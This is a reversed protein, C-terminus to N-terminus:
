ACQERRESGEGADPTFRHGKKGDSTGDEVPFKALSWELSGDIHEAMTRAALDPDGSALAVLLRRHADVTIRRPEGDLKEQLRHTHALGMEFQWRVGSWAAILRRHGTLRVVYEHLEVDLHSLQRLTAASEQLDINKELVVTDVPKWRQTVIRAAMSELAVRM